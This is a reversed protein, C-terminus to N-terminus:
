PKVEIKKGCPCTIFWWKESGGGYDTHIAEQVDNGIYSLEKACGDCEAKRLKSKANGIIRVTM